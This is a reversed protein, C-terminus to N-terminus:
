PCPAWDGILSGLAAAAHGLIERIKWELKLRKSAEPFAPRIRLRRRGGSEIEDGM